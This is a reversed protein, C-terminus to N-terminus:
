TEYNIKITKTEKNIEHKGIVIKCGGEYINKGNLCEIAYKRFLYTIRDGGQIKKRKITKLFETFRSRGFARCAYYDLKYWNNLNIENKFYINECCLYDKWAKLLGTEKLFRLCIKKNEEFRKEEEM